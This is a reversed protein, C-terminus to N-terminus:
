KEGDLWKDTYNQLSWLGCTCDSTEVTRMDIKMNALKCSMPHPHSTMWGQHRRLLDIAEHALDYAECGDVTVKQNKSIERGEWVTIAHRHAALRDEAKM